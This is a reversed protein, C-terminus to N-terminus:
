AQTIDLVGERHTIVFRGSFGCNRLATAAARIRAPFRSPDSSMYDSGFMAGDGARNEVVIRGPYGPREADLEIRLPRGAALIGRSQRISRECPELFVSQLVYPIDM